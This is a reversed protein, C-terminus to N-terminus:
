KVVGKLVDVDVVHAILTGLLLDVVALQEDEVALEVVVFPRLRAHCTEKEELHQM